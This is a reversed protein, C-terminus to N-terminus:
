RGEITKEAELEADACEVLTPAAAHYTQWLRKAPDWHISPQQQLVRLREADLATQAQAAKRGAAYGALWAREVWDWIWPMGARCPHSWSVYASARQKLTRKKM